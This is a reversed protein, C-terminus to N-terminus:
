VKVCDSLPHYEISRRTYLRNERDTAEIVYLKDKYGVLLANARQDFLLEGFVNKINNDDDVNVVTNKGQAAVNRPYWIACIKTM